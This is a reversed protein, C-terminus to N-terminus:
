TRGKRERLLAVGGFFVACIVVLSAAAASVYQVNMKMYQNNMYHQVLYLAGAPYQGFLLYSEKYIRFYYMLLFLAALVTENRIMPLRVRFFLQRKNCGDLAAADLVERSIGALAIHMLAAAPGACKWWYLTSLALMSVPWPTLIDAQFVRNWLSVASVSPILLPLILLAIGGNALRPHEGLLWALLLSLIAAGLLCVLGLILLNKLGLLFYNNRWVYAFNDLGVATTQFSSQITAYWFTMGLPLLYLAAFGAMPLAGMASLRLKTQLSRKMIM